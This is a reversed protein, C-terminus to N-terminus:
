LVWRKKQITNFPSRLDADVIKLASKGGGRPGRSRFLGIKVFFSEDAELHQYSQLM